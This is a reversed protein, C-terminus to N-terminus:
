FIWTKMWNQPLIGKYTRFLSRRITIPDVLHRKGHSPTQYRGPTHDMPLAQPTGLAPSVIILPTIDHSVGIHNTVLHTTCTNTNTIGTSIDGLTDTQLPTILIAIMALYPTPHSGTTTVPAETMSPDIIHDQGILITGKTAYTISPTDSTGPATTGIATLTPDTTIIPHGHHSSKRPFTKLLIASIMVTLASYRLAIAVLTAKRGAFLVITMM